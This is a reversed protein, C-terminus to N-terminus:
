TLATRRAATDPGRVAPVAPAPPGRPAAPVHRFSAPASRASRGRWLVGVSKEEVTQWAVATGTVFIVGFNDDPRAVM